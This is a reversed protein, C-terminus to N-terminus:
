VGILGLIAKWKVNDEVTKKALKIKKKEGHHIRGVAENMMSLTSYTDNPVLLVPVGQDKARALVRVHPHLNGTLVLVSTNTQLAALLIDSRDGGTIVAKNVSRRLYTLASEPTM